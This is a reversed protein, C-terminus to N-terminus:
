YDVTLDGRRWTVEKRKVVEVCNLCITRLNTFVTNNLDGDIHFVTMQSPYVSKFGCIDCQPKKRYGAKEWNHTIPKKKFKKKGCSDCISRYYTKGKRKYNIARYNKNCEKCIPRKIPM